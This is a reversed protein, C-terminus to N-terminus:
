PGVTELQSSGNFVRINNGERSLLPKRVWGEEIPPAEFLAEVLYPSNPFLHWLVPLIGKNSLVMKWPYLEFMAAMKRDHPDAFFGKSNWGIEAVPHTQVSLGAQRATELLYGTTVGDEMNDLSCFDIQSPLTRGIQQWRAILSEHLSNFQDEEPAVDQLWEWQAVAAELLSTPTGANYELMKPPGTGDYLLDFRGYLSLEKARWSREILPITFQYGGRESWCTDAINNDAGWAFGIADLKERFDPRPKSPLHRM